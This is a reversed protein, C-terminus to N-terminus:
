SHMSTFYKGTTVNSEKKEIESKLGTESNEFLNSFIKVRFRSSKVGGM